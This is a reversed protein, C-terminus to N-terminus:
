WSVLVSVGREAGTHTIIIEWSGSSASRSSADCDVNRLVLVTLNM